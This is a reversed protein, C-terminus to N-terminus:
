GVHTEEGTERVAEFAGLILEKLAELLDDLLSVRGPVCWSWCRSQCGRRARPPGPDRQRRRQRSEPWRPGRGAGPSRPSLRAQQHLVLDGVGPRNWHSCGTMPRRGDHRDDAVIRSALRRRHPLQRTFNFTAPRSGSTQAASVKRAAATSCSSTHACRAPTSMYRALDSGIRPRRHEIRRAPVRGRGRGEDQDVRGAPTSM